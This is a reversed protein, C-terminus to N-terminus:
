ANRQQFTTFVSEIKKSTILRNLYETEEHNMRLFFHVIKHLYKNQTKETQTM